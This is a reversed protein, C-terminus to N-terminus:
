NKGYRKHFENYSKLLIKIHKDWTFVTLAESRASESLKRYLHKNKILEIIKTEYARSDDPLRIVSKINGSDGSGSVLVPLGTALAELITMPMGEGRSPLIFIDSAKYFLSLKRHDVPNFVLIEGSHQIDEGDGVMVLRFDTQRISKILNIGKKEVFRGIYLVLPIDTPLGLKKRVKLKEERSSPSFLVTNVGNPLIKVDKLYLKGIYEKISKNLVYIQDALGATISGFTLFAAKQVLRLMPNNFPVIGVHETVIFPKHFIKSILAAWFSGGYLLGHAHIIDARNIEGILTLIIRPSFVPYPVGYREFPNIAPIRLVDEGTGAHGGSRNSIDSSIIRVQHGSKKLYSSESGVVTEIGGFHPLYYHTIFLIKMDILHIYKWLVM